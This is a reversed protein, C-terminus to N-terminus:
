LVAGIYLPGEPKALQPWQTLWLDAYRGVHKGSLSLKDVNAISDIWITRAGFWKGLRITLYGIAAGTSIIIEPRERLLIWLIQLGMRILGLKNWISAGEICYFRSPEVAHRNSEITTVFVTECGNLAPIVRCLQVWHGGGSAVALVRKTARPDTFKLPRSFEEIRMSSKGGSLSSTPVYTEHM